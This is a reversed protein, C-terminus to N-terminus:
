SVIFPNDQHLTQTDIKIDSTSTDPELFALVFADADDPSPVAGGPRTALQKKTEIVIKGKENRFWKPTSLQVQLTPDDPIVLIENWQQEIGKDGRYSGPVAQHELLFCLHLHSRHFADRALWWLEAKLNGFKDLSRVEDPWLRSTPPNGTNIPHAHGKITPYKARDIKSLTSLVGAGVGPVDFNLDDSGVDRMCDLMWYATDTTDAEQRRDVPLVLPGFKHVCVSKAKGAGVDGGTIGKKSRPVMSGFMRGLEVASQVWKYPIAVGESAPTYIIEYEADWVSPDALTAKKELAWQDTKRPDDRWYLRFIMGGVVAFAARKRAFFNSLGGAEPNPTSVWGVCDTNGSVAAEVRAPHSLFAGEDVVYMTSRGGRGPNDGTEGTAVAGTVPNTLQMINDHKRENFGDPMMWIPLRRYIIRLKEFISDPNGKSDVNLEDRSCFTAKFGPTFLWRWLVYAAILYTAGQDRSKELMWPKGASVKAHLFRLFEEQKPWPIFRVYPVKNEAILRPDFTWCWNKFWHLLGEIGDACKALEEANTIRAGHEAKFQAEAQARQHDAEIRELQMALM